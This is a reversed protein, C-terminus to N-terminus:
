NCIDRTRERLKDTVICFNIETEPLTRMERSPVSFRLNSMNGRTFCKTLPYM